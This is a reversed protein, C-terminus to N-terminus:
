SAVLARKEVQISSFRSVMSVPALEGIQARDEWIDQTASSSRAATLPAEKSTCALRAVELRSRTYKWLTAM